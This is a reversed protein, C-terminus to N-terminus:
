STYFKNNGQFALSPYAWCVTLAIKLSYSGLSTKFTGASSELLSDIHPLELVILVLMGVESKCSWCNGSIEFKFSHLVEPTWYWFMLMKYINDKYVVCQSSRAALKWITDWHPTNFPTNSYQKGNDCIFIHTGLYHLLLM